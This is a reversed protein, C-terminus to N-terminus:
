KGGPPKPSPGLRSRANEVLMLVVHRILWSGAIGVVAVMFAGLSGLIALVFPQVGPMQFRALAFDVFIIAALVIALITGCVAIVLSGHEASGLYSPEKGDRRAGPSHTLPLDSDFALEASGRKPAASPPAPPKPPAPPTPPMQFAGRCHPCSALKGALEAAFAVPKGCHPCGLLPLDPM